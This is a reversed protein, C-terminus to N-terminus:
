VLAESYPRFFHECFPHCTHYDGDLVERWWRFYQGRIRTGGEEISFIQGDVAACRYDQNKLYFGKGKGTSNFKVLRTEVERARTEQANYGAETTTTSAILEAYHEVDFSKFTGFQTKLYFREGGSIMPVYKRLDADIPAFGKAIAEGMAPNARKRFEAIIADKINLASAGKLYQDEIVNMPIERIIDQGRRGISIAQKASEQVLTQYNALRNSHLRAYESLMEALPQYNPTKLGISSSFVGVAIAREAAWARNSMAAIIENLAAIKDIRGSLILILTRLIGRM